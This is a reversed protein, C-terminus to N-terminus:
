RKAIEYVSGSSLSVVYLNGNPGTQIDTVVGFNSGFLLSEGETLDSRRTNDMVRDVLRPDSVAIKQRNGTLDFRFLPGGMATPVSFGVFLDGQYQPGLARSGLFGIAAPAMVYKWSFEPESYTSGSLRFLRAFADSPTDAIRDPPWRDQQLSSDESEITKYETIRSSPGILQVWGSNSGRTVQNLEDFADDGNEQDWLRGSLPDFALGFGNRVGYSYVKKINDGAEGGISAGAAVFPNDTPTSGDDNLRLIM